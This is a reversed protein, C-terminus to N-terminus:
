FIIKRGSSVSIPINSITSEKPTFDTNNINPLAFSSILISMREKSSNLNTNNNILTKKIESIFESLDKNLTNSLDSPIGPLNIFKLLPILNQKANRLAIEFDEIKRIGSLEFMKQFSDLWKIKRKKYTEEIKIYFRNATGADIKFTANSLVFLANDDGDIFKDLQNIWEAYTTPSQM